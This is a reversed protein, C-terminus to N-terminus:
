AIGSSLLTPIPIKRKRRVKFVTEVDFTYMPGIVRIISDISYTRYIAAVESTLNRKSFEVSIPYSPSGEQYWDCATNIVSGEDVRSAECYDLVYAKVNKKDYNDIIALIHQSNIQMLTIFPYGNYSTPHTELIM